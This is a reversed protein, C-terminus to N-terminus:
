RGTISRALAEDGAPAQLALLPLRDNHIVLSAERHDLGAPLRMSAAERYQLAIIAGPNARSAYRMPSLLGFYRMATSASDGAGLKTAPATAVWGFVESEREPNVIGAFDPNGLAVACPRHPAGIGAQTCRGAVILHQLNGFVARLQAETATPGESSGVRWATPTFDISITASRASPELAIRQFLYLVEGAAAAPEGASLEGVHDVATLLTQAHAGGVVNLAVVLAAHALSRTCGIGSNLCASGLPLFLPLMEM